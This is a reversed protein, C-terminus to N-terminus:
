IKLWRGAFLFELLVRSKGELLPTKISNLLPTKAPLLRAMYPNFKSKEGHQPTTFYSIQVIHPHYRSSIHIIDLHYTSSIQIIDPHFTSSIQVIWMEYWGCIMWIDCVYWIMDYKFEWNEGQNTFVPNWFTSNLNLKNVWIEGLQHSSFYQIWFTSNLNLKHVWIEGLQYTSKLM